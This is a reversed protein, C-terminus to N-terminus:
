KTDNVDTDSICKLSRRVLDQPKFSSNLIIIETALREDNILYRSVSTPAYYNKVKMLCGLIDFCSETKGM